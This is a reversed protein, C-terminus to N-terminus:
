AINDCPGLGFHLHPGTSVNSDGDTNGSVGLTTTTTVYDGNNVSISHLHAYRTYFRGHHVDVYKGWGTNNQPHIYATGPSAPYVNKLNGDEDETRYDIGDHYRYSASGRYEGFNSSRWYVEDLPYFAKAPGYMFVVFLILFLFCLVRKFGFLAKM